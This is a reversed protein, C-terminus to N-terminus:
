LSSNEERGSIKDEEWSFRNEAPQPVHILDEGGLRRRSPWPDSERTLHSLTRDVEIESGGRIHFGRSDGSGTSNSAIPSVINTDASGSGSGSGSAIPSVINTNGSGYLDGRIADEHETFHSGLSSNTGVPETGSSGASRVTRGDPGIFKPVVAPLQVNDPLRGAYVVNAPNIRRYMPPPGTPPGMPSNPASVFGPSVPSPQDDITLSHPSDACVPSVLPSEVDSPRYHPVPSVDVENKEVPYTDHASQMQLAAAAAQQRELKRRAREYASLNASDQTSSEHETTGDWTGSDSDLEAPGLPAPLEFREHTADAAVETPYDTSGSAEHVIPERPRRCLRALFSRPKATELPKEDSADDKKPKRRRRIFFIVFILLVILVVVGVVIGVIAGTPISSGSKSPPGAFISSSPRTITVINTSGLPDAPHVAQYVAFFNREYDTIIYAEQLFARGIRYQADNTAQRLPFYNRTANADGYNTNPIAPWTLQLDFAAYPITINVTPTSTAMDTLSFTFSVNSKALNDHNSDNGGFTYLNLADDYILGLASAFRECVSQPLWLYPTQSDIIANVRDSTTLLPASNTLNNSALGSTVSIGELYTQPQQSPNLGFTV